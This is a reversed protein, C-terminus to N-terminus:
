YVMIPFINYMPMSKLPFIQIKHFSISFLFFSGSKGILGQLFEVKKQQM